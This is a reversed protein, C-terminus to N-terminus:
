VQAERAGTELLLVQTQDEASRIVLGWRDLLSLYSLQAIETDSVPVGQEEGERIVYPFTMGDGYRRDVVELFKIIQPYTTVVASGERYEKIMSRADFAMYAADESGFLDLAHDFFIEDKDAIASSLAVHLREPTTQFSEYLFKTM